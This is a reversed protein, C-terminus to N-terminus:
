DDAGDGGDDGVTLAPKGNPGIHGIPVWRGGALDHLTELPLFTLVAALAERTSADASIVIERPALTGTIEAILREAQVATALSGKSIASGLYGHLRALQKKRSIDVHEREQSEFEQVAAMRMREIAKAEMGEFQQQMKFVLEDKPINLAVLKMVAFRRKALEPAPTAPSQRMRPARTEQRIRPM